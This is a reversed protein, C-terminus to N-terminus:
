GILIAKADVLLLGCGINCNLDFLEQLVMWVLKCVPVCSILGVFKRLIGMAVVKGLVYRLAEGM